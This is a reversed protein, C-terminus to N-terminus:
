VVTDFLAGTLPPSRDHPQEAVDSMRRSNSAVRIERSDSLEGVRDPRM